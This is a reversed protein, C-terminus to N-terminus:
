DFDDDDDDSDDDEIEKAIQNGIYQEFMPTFTLRNGKNWNELQSVIDPLVWDKGNRLYISQRAEKNSLGSLITFSESDDDKESVEDLNNNSAYSVRQVKDGTVMGMTAAM